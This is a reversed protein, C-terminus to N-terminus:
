MSVAGAAARAVADDGEGPLVDVGRALECCLALRSQLVVGQMTTRLCTSDGHAYSTSTVALVSNVTSGHSRFRVYESAICIVLKDGRLGSRAAGGGRGTRRAGSDDNRVCRLCLTSPDALALCRYARQSSSAAKDASGPALVSRTNGGHVRSRTWAQGEEQENGALALDSERFPVCGHRRPTFTRLARWSTDGLFARRPASRGRFVKTGVALITLSTVCSTRARLVRM